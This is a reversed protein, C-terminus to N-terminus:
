SQDGGDYALIGAGIGEPSPKEACVHPEFGFERMLYDRTTPGITAVRCSQSTKSALSADYRGTISDLWGLGRLMAGCGTPSFVVIWRRPISNSGADSTEIAKVFDAAFSQMEGTEYVTTETVPIQRSAPLDPSQLTKPIIDRRQEGVLFLLPRKQSQISSIQDAPLGNYHDLMFAALAEGNGTEEGLLPCKLNLARLGRATAPGVVYLPLSPPLLKDVDSADLSKVCLSFLEVARQSTFILGGFQDTSPQASGDENGEATRGAFGGNSTVRQLWELSDAKFRHELVPVFQPRFNGNTPNNFHEEYADAPTSKTKLLLIPVRNKDAIGAGDSM